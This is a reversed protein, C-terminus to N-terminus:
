VKVLKNVLVKGNEGQWKVIYVGSAWTATNVTFIGNQNIRENVIVEGMCNVITVNGTGAPLSIIVNSNAPNPYVKMKQDQISFTSIGLPWYNIYSIFADEVLGPTQGINSGDTFRSSNTNGTAAYGNKFPFVSPYISEYATGGFQNNTIVNGTNDLAFLWADAQGINGPNTSGYAIYGFFATCIAAGEDDKTGGLCNEWKLIGNRDIKVVWMDASGGNYGTVMYDTSATEGNVVICSDRSDWIANNAGDGGTGGYSKGWAINGATDLKFIYYDFGTGVGPHWLSDVCDHDNSNSSSIIYVSNDAILVRGLLREDGTGGITKTWQKNGFSDTKVVFWDYDFQSGSYHAPVDGGAGNSGGLLIFGKDDALAISIAQEDYLSGYCKQWLLNGASNIRLM